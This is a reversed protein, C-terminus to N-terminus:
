RPGSAEKIESHAPTGDADTSILREIKEAVALTIFQNLSIGETSAFEVAQNRTSNPLRLPFVSNAKHTTFTPSM